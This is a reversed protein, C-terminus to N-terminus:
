RQFFENAMRQAEDRAKEAADARQREKDARKRESSLMSLYGVVWVSFASPM